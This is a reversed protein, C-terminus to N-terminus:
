VSSSLLKSNGQCAQFFFLKPKGALDPVKFLSTLDCVKLTGDTGYIAGEKGHSLIAVIIANHQSHNAKAQEKLIREIDKCEVNDHVEVRFLLKEFVRKLVNRDANTGNRPSGQMGSTPLFDKNNIIIAVGRPNKYMKYITGVDAPPANVVKAGGSGSPSSVIMADAQNGSFCFPSPSLDKM